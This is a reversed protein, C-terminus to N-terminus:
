LTYAATGQAPLSSRHPFGFGIQRWLLAESLISQFREGTERRDVTLLRTAVAEFSLRRPSIEDWTTALRRGLADRARILAAAFGDPRRAYADAFDAATAEVNVHGDAARHARDALARTILGDEVLFEQFVEVLIDFVAGTMPQGIEHREPQALTQWPQKRDAVDSLRKDNSALRIQETPSLEALRNLENEVYLNGRCADLVHRIFSDFHLVSLLAVCDSASEHFALYETTLDADDPIGLISFIILHGTEHGLVDFNLCFPQADGTKPRGWGTELFGFGAQANDWEVYPILELRPFLPAFHWRIERDLYGEWIDLVRRVCAYIHAAGFAPDAADVHDFHGDPGPQLDPRRPGRCPPLSDGLYPAKGIADVVFMRGDAPGPRLAPPPTSVWVTEPTEFGPLFRPQPFVRFRTGSRRLIQDHALPV